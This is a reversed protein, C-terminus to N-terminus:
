GNLKEEEAAASFALALFVAFATHVHQFSIETLNVVYFAPLACLAWLAYPSKAARFRRLAFLFLSAFLFLLAALGPLGREAAQHIYLNNLTGYIGEEPFPEPHFKKFARKINDPGVGVAPHAKLMKYGLKWLEIRVNIGTSASNDSFDGQRVILMASVRDKLVPTAAVLLAAAALMLGAYVALRKRAPPAFIFIALLGTLLGLYSGRAQTLILAAFVPAAALLYFLRERKFSEKSPLLLRSLILMFAITLAEGYRVPNMFVGARALAGGGALLPRLAEFIGFLSSVAAAATYVASLRPLHKSKVALFLTFLCIYKLFDSNLQGLGKLPYYATISTLLCIGLYIMWPLFLPHSALKPPLGSLSAKRYKEMLLAALTILLAAEVATVSFIVSFAFLALASDGLNDTTCRQNLANQPTM